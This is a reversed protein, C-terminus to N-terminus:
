VPSQHSEQILLDTEALYAGDCSVLQVKLASGTM